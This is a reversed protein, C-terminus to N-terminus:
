VPAAELSISLGNRLRVADDNSLYCVDGPRPVKAETLIGAAMSKRHLAKVKLGSRQMIRRIQRNKGETLVVRVVATFLGSDKPARTQCESLFVRLVEVSRAPKTTLPFGNQSFSVPHRMEKELTDTCINMDDKLLDRRRGSVRVIYEKSHFDVNKASERPVDM